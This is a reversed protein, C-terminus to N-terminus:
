KNCNLLEQLLIKVNNIEEKITDLDRELSEVKIKEKQKLTSNALYNQYGPQNINLIANTTRDRVLDSNGEIKAYNM